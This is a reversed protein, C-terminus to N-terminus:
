IDAASKLIEKVFDLRIRILTVQPGRVVGEVILANPKLFDTKLEDGEVFDFVKDKAKRKADADGSFGPGVLMGLALIVLVLKKM